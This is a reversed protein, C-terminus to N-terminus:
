CLLDMLLGVLLALKALKLMPWCVLMAFLSMLTLYSALLAMLSYFSLDGGFTDVADVLVDIHDLGLAFPIDVVVDPRVVTLLLDVDCDKIVGSDDVEALILMLLLSCRMLSIVLANLIMPMTISLMADLKM